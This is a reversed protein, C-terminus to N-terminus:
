AHTPLVPFTEGAMSKLPPSFTGLMGPAYVVRLRAYRTLLSIIEGFTYVQQIIKLSFVPSMKSLSELMARSNYDRRKAVLSAVLDFM